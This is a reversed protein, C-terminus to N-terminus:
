QRWSSHRYWRYHNQRWQRWRRVTSGIGVRRGSRCCMCSRSRHRSTARMHSMKLAAPLIHCLHQRSCPTSQPRRSTRGKCCYRHPWRRLCQRPTCRFPGHTGIVAAMESLSTEVVLQAFRDLMEVAHRGAEQFSDLYVLAAVSTTHCPATLTKARVPCGDQRRAGVPPAVEDLSRPPLELGHEAHRSHIPRHHGHPTLDHRLLLRLSFAAAGVAAGAVEGEGAGADAGVAFYSCRM